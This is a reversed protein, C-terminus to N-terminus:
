LCLAGRTTALSQLLWPLGGEEEQQEKEEDFPHHVSADFENNDTNSPSDPGEIQFPPLAPVGAPSVGAPSPSSM